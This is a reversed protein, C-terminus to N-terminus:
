FTKDLSESIKQLHSKAILKEIVLKKIKKHIEDKNKGGIYSYNPSDIPLVCYQNNDIHLYGDEDKIIDVVCNKYCVQGEYNIIIFDKFFDNYKDTYLKKLIFPISDECSTIKEHFWLNTSNHKYIFCVGLQPRTCFSKRIDEPLYLYKNELM